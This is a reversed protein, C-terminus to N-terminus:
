PKERFFVLGRDNGGYDTIATLFHYEKEAFIDTVAQKQDYGIELAVVGHDNLFAEADLAIARYADLGDAGGDLALMPDFDRVDPDLGPIVASRIYPPNSVIIDFRGEVADFWRSEVCAFRDGLGNLDANRLATELAGPAIDTGTAMLGEVESLLALAIAGTGTGLDLLRAAGNRAVLERAIPILADVLVESDPRPELTDPSLSLTLGFFDRRGLIRHVPEHRLRRQLAERVRQVQEPPVVRDGHLVFDAVSLDLLGAILVRADTAADISGGEELVRRAESLLAALTETM